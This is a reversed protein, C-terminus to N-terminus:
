GPQAGQWFGQRVLTCQGIFVKKSLERSYEGAMARKLNKILTSILSDDNEFNEACYVVRVGARKCIYEYYASEDIDQFRGWRSVDHVLIMQFDAEGRQVINLLDRLAPRDDLRLGSRGEDSYTRVIMINRSGAFAAILDLQNQISYDQRDTSMRVYQAARLPGVVGPTTEIAATTRGRM